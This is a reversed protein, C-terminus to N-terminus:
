RLAYAIFVRFFGKFYEFYGFSRRFALSSLSVLLRRSHGESTALRLLWSSSELSTLIYDSMTLSAISLWGLLRRSFAFVRMVLWRLSRLILLGLASNRWFSFKVCSLDKTRDKSACFSFNVDEWFADDTEDLPEDLGEFHFRLFSILDSLDRRAWFASWRLCADGGTIRSFRSSPAGSAWFKGEVKEGLHDSIFTLVRSGLYFLILSLLFPVILHVPM